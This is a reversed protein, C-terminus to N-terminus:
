IQSATVNELQSQCLSISFTFHIFFPFARSYSHSWVVHRILQVSKNELLTLKMEYNDSAQNHNMPLIPQILLFWNKLSTQNDNWAHIQKLKIHSTIKRCKQEHVLDLQGWLVELIYNLFTKNEQLVSNITISFEEVVSAAFWVPLYINKLNLTLRKIIKRLSWVCIYYM